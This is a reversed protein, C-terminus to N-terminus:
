APEQLLQCLKGLVAGIGEHAGIRAIAGLELGRHRESFFTEVEEDAIAYLLEQALAEAAAVPTRRAKGRRAGIRFDEVSIRAEDGAEAM